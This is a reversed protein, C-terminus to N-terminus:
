GPERPAAWVLSAREEIVRSLVSPYDTMVGDVGKDLLCKMACEDNITWAIVRAGGNHAARIVAGRALWGPLQASAAASTWRRRPILAHLLLLPVHRPTMATTPSHGTKQGIAAATVATRRHSFSGVCIREVGGIRKLLEPLARTTPVDKIDLFFRTDAPLEAMVREFSVLHAQGGDDQPSRELARGPRLRQWGRGHYVVVEGATTTRLDVEFFKVGATAAQIFAAMSTERQDGM